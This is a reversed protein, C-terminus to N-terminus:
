PIGRAVVMGASSVSCLTDDCLCCRIDHSINVTNMQHGPSLQVSQGKVQASSRTLAEDRGM